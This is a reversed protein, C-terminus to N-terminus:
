THGLKTALASAMDTLLGERMSDERKQLEHVFHGRLARMEVVRQVLSRQTSRRAEPYCHPSNDLLKVRLGCLSLATRLGGTDEELLRALSRDPGLCDAHTIVTLVHRAAGDGFLELIARIARSVDQDRGEGSDPARVVLLFAHPGPAALQLSRLAEWARKTSGLSPGLLDPTDIVMVDRGDVVARRRTSELLPPTSAVTESVGCGLMTDGLSTRGGRTPGLLLVRLGPERLICSCSLDPSWVPLGRSTISSEDEETEPPRKRLPRAIHQQLTIVSELLQKTYILSGTIFKILVLLWSLKSFLAIIFWWIQSLWIFLSQIGRLIGVLQSLWSWASSLGTLSCLLRVPWRILAPLAQSFRYLLFGAVTFVGTLLSTLDLWLGEGAASPSLGAEPRPATIADTTDDRCSASTPTCVSDVGCDCEM